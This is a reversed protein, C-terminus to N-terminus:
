PKGRIISTCFYAQFVPLGVWKSDKRSLFEIFIEGFHQWLVGLTAGQLNIFRARVGDESEAV